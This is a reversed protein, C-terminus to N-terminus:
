ASYRSKSTYDRSYFILPFILYAEQNIFFLILFMSVPRKLTAVFTFFAPGPNYIPMPKMDVEEIDISQSGCDTFQLKTYDVARSAFVLITLILTLPLFLIRM